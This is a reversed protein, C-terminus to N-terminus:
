KRGTRNPTVAGTKTGRSKKWVRDSSLRRTGTRVAWGRGSRVESDRGKVEEEGGKNKQEGPRGPQAARRCMEKERRWRFVAEREWLLFSVIAGAGLWASLPAPLNPLELGAPSWSVPCLLCLSAMSQSWHGKLRWFWPPHKGLGKELM